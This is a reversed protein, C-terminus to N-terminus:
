KNPDKYGKTLGKLLAIDIHEDTLTWTKVKGMSGYITMKKKRLWPFVKHTSSDQYPYNQSPIGM